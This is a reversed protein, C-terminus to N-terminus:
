YHVAAAYTRMQGTAALHQLSDNWAGFNVILLLAAVPIALVASWRPLKKKAVLALAVVFLPLYNPSFLFASESGYVSHLVVGFLPFLPIFWQTRPLVWLGVVLVAVAILAVLVSVVTGPLLLGFVHLSQDWTRAGVEVFHREELFNLPIGLRKRLFLWQPAWVAFVLALGLLAPRVMMRARSINEGAFSRWGRRLATFDIKELVWLAANTVVLSFSAAFALASRPKRATMVLVAVITSVGGAMHTEPLTSWFVFSATSCYLLVYCTAAWPGIDFRRLVVYLLGAGTAAIMVGILPVAEAAPLGFLRALVQQYFVCIWGHWPHVKLRYYNDSAGTLNGLVRGTDADYMANQAPVNGHLAVAAAWGIACAAVIVLGFLAGDLWGVRTVATARSWVADAIAM